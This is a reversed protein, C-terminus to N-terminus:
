FVDAVDEFSNKAEEVKKTRFKPNAADDSSPVYDFEGKDIDWYYILKGGSIGDRHKKIGFELGAGTQKLSIVKTANHAIGDSDRINELDPTGEDESRVGSRNSQVVLLIPIGLELSLMSLDESINTLTTTKNDGRKFREDTMYTIGDIGLIDIKYTKCYNKLKSVTIKKNFDLPTSVYFPTKKTKLDEIYNEYENVEKGWVLASNSFNKILTDFRYGIKTPSMEPSIYATRYGLKWAHSLTKALVWSKGEGTRAFIIALEEGRSWGRIVSDLEEFGTTIYWNESNEKKELYAKFREDADSIINTAALSNTQQLNPLESHLYEVADNSDTKLLEAVKQVVQVSKYYLNQEKLTDILFKDTETVDVIEFDIFNNLFTERDPVNGYEDFHQKIFKFEEEYGVFNDAELNNKTILSIDKTTLIKNLIQLSIM